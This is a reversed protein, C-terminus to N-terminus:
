VVERVKALVARDARMGLLDCASAGAVVAIRGDAAAERSERGGRGANDGMRVRVANACEAVFM